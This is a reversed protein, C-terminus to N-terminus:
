KLKAIKVGDLKISNLVAAGIGIDSEAWVRLPVVFREASGQSQVPAVWARIPPVKGDRVVQQPPGALPKYGVRCVDAEGSFLGNDMSIKSKRDFSLAIDYRRRADYIPVAVGCPKAASALGTTITVM